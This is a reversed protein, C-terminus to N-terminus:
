RSGDLGSGGTRGGYRAYASRADATEAIHRLTSETAAIRERIRQELLTTDEMAARAEARDINQPDRHLWAQVCQTRLHLLVFVEHSTGHELAACAADYLERAHAADASRRDDVETRADRAM